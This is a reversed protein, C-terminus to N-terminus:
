FRSLRFRLTWIQLLLCICFGRRNNQRLNELNLFNDSNTQLKKKKRRKKLPRTKIKIKNLLFTKKWLLKIKFPDPKLKVKLVEATFTRSQGGPSASPLRPGPQALSASLSHVLLLSLSRACSSFSFIPLSVPRFCPFSNELCGRFSPVSWVGSMFVCLLLLLLVSLPLSNPWLDPPWVPPEREKKDTVQSSLFVCSDSGSFSNSVASRCVSPSIPPSLRSRSVQQWWQM